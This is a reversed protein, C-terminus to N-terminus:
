HQGFSIDYACQVDTKPFNSTTFVSEVDMKKYDM